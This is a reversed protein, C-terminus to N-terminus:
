HHFSPHFEQMGQPRVTSTHATFCPQLHSSCIFLLNQKKKNKKCANRFDQLTGWKWERPDEGVKAKRGRCVPPMLKPEWLNGASLWSDCKKQMCHHFLDCMQCGRAGHGAEEVEAMSQIVQASESAKIGGSVVFGKCFRFLVPVDTKWRSASCHNCVSKGFPKKPVVICCLM